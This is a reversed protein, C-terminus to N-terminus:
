FLVWIQTIVQRNIVHGISVSLIGFFVSLNVIWFLLVLRMKLYPDVLTPRYPKNIADVEINGTM